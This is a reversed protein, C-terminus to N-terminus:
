AAAKTFSYMMTSTDANRGEPTGDGTADAKRTTTLVLAEAGGDGAHEWSRTIYLEGSEPHKYNSVLSWGHGFV